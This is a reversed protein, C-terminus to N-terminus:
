NAPVEVRLTLAPSFLRRVLSNKCEISCPTMAGPRLFANDNKKIKSLLPDNIEFDLGLRTPSVRTLAQHIILASYVESGPNNSATPHFSFNPGIVPIV